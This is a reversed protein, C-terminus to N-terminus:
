QQNMRKSIESKTLGILFRLFRLANEKNSSVEEWAWDPLGDVLEPESKVIQICRNREDLVEQSLKPKDVATTEDVIKCVIDEFSFYGEEPGCFFRGTNPPYADDDAMGLFKANGHYALTKDPSDFSIICKDGEKLEDFSKVPVTNM